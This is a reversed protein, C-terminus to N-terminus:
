TRDSGSGALAIVTIIIAGTLLMRLGASAGAANLMAVLLFMFLAAGWIGPVCPRGGSVSTGGIVVVAITLLLYEDGQDLSNGGAFGAILAGTLGALAACIVYALLSTRVTRVGSFEAARANQGLACLSRGFVTREVVLWVLVSVALALLALLPIGGLRLTVLEIFIPPPKIKLGRGFSIACSMVILSNALTAIIPPIRLLRILGFNLLGVAAGVGMAALLGPLVMADSGDMVLMSVASSLAITSPISLDANGPGTSIVLMQGLAVLVTLASFSLAAALLGPIGQIQGNAITIVFAVAAALVSGLWPANRARQRWSRLSPSLTSTSM